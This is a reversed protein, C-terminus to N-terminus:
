LRWLSLPCSTMDNRFTCWFLWGTIIRKCFSIDSNNMMTDQFHGITCSFFFIGLTNTEQPLIFTAPLICLANGTPKKKKKSFLVVVLAIVIKKFIQPGETYTPIPRLLDYFNKSGNKYQLFDISVEYFVLWDAGSWVALVM